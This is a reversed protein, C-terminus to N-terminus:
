PMPRPPSAWCLRVATGSTTAEISSRDSLEGMLAIGRGRYGPEGVEQWLGDDTVLVAFGGGCARPGAVLTVYCETDPCAHEVANTVAEDVILVVSEALDAELDVAEVWARMRRRLLRVANPDAPVQESVWRQGAREGSPWCQCAPGQPASAGHDQVPENGPSHNETM